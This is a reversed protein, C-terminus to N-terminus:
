YGKKLSTSNLKCFVFWLVAAKEMKPLRPSSHSVVALTLLLLVGWGGLFGAVLPIVPWENAVYGVLKVELPFYPHVAQALTSNLM